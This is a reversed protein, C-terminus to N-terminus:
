GKGACGGLPCSLGPAAVSSPDLAGPRVPKTQFASAGGTELPPCQALSAAAEETSGESAGRARETGKAEQFASVEIHCSQSGKASPRIYRSFVIVEQVPNHTHLVFPHGRVGESSLSLRKKKKKKKKGQGEGAASWSGGM